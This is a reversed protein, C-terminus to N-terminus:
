VVSSATEGEGEQVGPGPAVMGERAAVDIGVDTTLIVAGLRSLMDDRGEGVLGAAVRVMSNATEGEGEQVGPGPVVMGEMAAADGAGEGVHGSGVVMMVSTGM